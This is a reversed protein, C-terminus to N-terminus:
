RGFIFDSIYDATILIQESATLTPEGDGEQEGYMGFYAHCGGEIEIDPTGVPLNSFYGDHKERNMVGDETGHICLARLPSDSLDATSYSGLLILGSFGDAHKELYSAAMSGGLSHGAMYWDSVGAIEERVGDAANIDFVALNFPMDVLVSTIGREALAAMLPAYARSDVKGGPYFIVGATAGEASFVTYGDETEYTAVEAMPAFASIAGEDARYYDGLYIACAGVILVLASIVSILAIKKGRSIKKLIHLEGKIFKNM